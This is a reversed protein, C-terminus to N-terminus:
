IACWLPRSFRLFVETKWWPTDSSCDVAQSLCSRHVSYQHLTLSAKRSCAFGTGFQTYGGFTHFGVSKSRVFIGRLKSGGFQTFVELRLSVESNSFSYSLWEEVLISLSSTTQSAHHLLISCLQKHQILDIWESFHQWMQCSKPWCIFITWTLFSVFLSTWLFLNFM